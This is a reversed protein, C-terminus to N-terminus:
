YVHVTCVQTGGVPVVKNYNAIFIGTASFDGPCPFADNIYDTAKQLLMSDDTAAFVISRGPGINAWFPAFVRVDSGLPFPDTTFPVANLDFIGPVSLGGYRAVQMCVYMCVRYMCAYMYVYLVYMCVQMCVCMCVVCMCAYM